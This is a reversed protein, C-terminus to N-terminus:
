AAGRETGSVLIELAYAERWVDTHYAKVTGYNADFVDISPIGMESATSKLLRWSFRQGHYLMEMRKVTAYQQSRDLDIELRTAKKVAQSATNMATAERRAGIEAKTRQAIQRAEYEDAWARAAAVPDSFDPMAIMGNRKGAKADLFAQNVKLQFAPSIWGAYSVALLENAFTGGNRGEISVISIQMTEKELEAVLEATQKNRLWQSPAKDPGGRSARHLANLNYRGESDATVEVGAISVIPAGISDQTLM